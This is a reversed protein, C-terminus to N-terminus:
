DRSTGYASGGYGADAPVPNEVGTGNNLTCKTAIDPPCTVLGSRNDVCTFGGSALKDPKCVSEGDCIVPGRLIRAAEVRAENLTRCTPESASTGTKKTCANAGCTMVTIFALVFTKLVKV